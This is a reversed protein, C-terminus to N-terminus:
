STRVLLGAITGFAFNNMVVWIAPINEEVATALDGCRVYAVGARDLKHLVAEGDAYDFAINCTNALRPSGGGNVRTLPIAARLGNELRDRLALYEQRLADVDGARFLLGNEGDRVVESLGGLDSAIM